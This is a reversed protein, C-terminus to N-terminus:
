PAPFARRTPPVFETALCDMLVIDTVRDGRRHAQRRRGIEKFGARAYARLASPNDALTDLLVNHVNLVAFAYDLVLRTAETGLGRGRRDVEGITIGFEATRHPNMSDRVNAVGIPRLDPLEYIAFGVWDRREGRILPEWFAAGAEQSRPRPEDGGRDVTAFDNDWRVLLPLLGPHLPGLAVKEGLINVIPREGIEGPPATDSM